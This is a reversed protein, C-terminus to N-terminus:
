SIGTLTVPTSSTFFVGTIETVSGASLFSARLTAAVEAILAATYGLELHKPLFLTAFITFPDTVYSTEMGLGKSWSWNTLGGGSLFTDLNNKSEVLWFYGQRYSDGYQIFSTHTDFFQYFVIWAIIGFLATYISILKLNRKM